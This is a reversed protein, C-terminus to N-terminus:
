HLKLLEDTSYTIDKISNVTITDYGDTNSVELLYWTELEIGDIKEFYYEPTTLMKKLLPIPFYKCEQISEIQYNPYPDKEEESGLIDHKYIVIKLTNKILQEEDGYHM